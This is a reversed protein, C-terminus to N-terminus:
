IIESKGKLVEVLVERGGVGMGGKEPGWWFM